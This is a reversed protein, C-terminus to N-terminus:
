GQTLPLLLLLVRVGDWTPRRLVGHMDVLALIERAMTETRLTRARHKPDSLEDDSDPAFKPSTPSTPSTLQTDEEVGYENVGFSAAWAVLLM